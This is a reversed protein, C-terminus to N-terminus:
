LNDLYLCTASFFFVTKMMILVGMLASCKFGYEFLYILTERESVIVERSAPWPIYAYKIPEEM